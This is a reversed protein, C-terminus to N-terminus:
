KRRNSRQIDGAGGQRDRVSKNWTQGRRKGGGGVKSVQWSHASHGTKPSLGKSLTHLLLRGDRSLRKNEAKLRCSIVIGYKICWFSIILGTYLKAFIQGTRSFYGQKQHNITLGSKQYTSGRAPVRLWRQIYDTSVFSWGNCQWVLVRKHKKMRSHSSCWQTIGKQSNCNVNLSAM